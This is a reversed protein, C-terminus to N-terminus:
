YEKHVHIYIIIIIKLDFSFISIYLLFFVLILFLVRMDVNQALVQLFILFNNNFKSINVLEDCKDSVQFGEM